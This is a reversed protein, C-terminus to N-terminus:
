KEPEGDLQEEEDDKYNVMMKREGYDSFTGANAL